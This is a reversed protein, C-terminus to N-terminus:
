RHILFLVILPLLDFVLWVLTAVIESWVEDTNYFIPIMKSSIAFLIVSAVVYILDFAFFTFIAAPVCTIRNSGTLAKISRLALVTTVGLFVLAIGNCIVMQLSFHLWQISFKITASQQSYIALTTTFYLILGFILLLLVVSVRQERKIKDRVINKSIRSSRSSTLADRNAIYFSVESYMIMYIM